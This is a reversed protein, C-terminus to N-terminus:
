KGKLEQVVELKRAEICVEIYIDCLHVYIFTLIYSLMHSLIYAMQREAQPNGCKYM